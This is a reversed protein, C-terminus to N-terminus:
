AMSNLAEPLQLRANDVNNMEPNFSSIRATWRGRLEGREDRDMEKTAKHALDTPIKRM